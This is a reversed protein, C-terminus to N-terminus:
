VATSTRVKTRIAEVVDTFDKKDEKPLTEIKDINSLVRINMETNIQFEPLTKVKNLVRLSYQENDDAAQAM